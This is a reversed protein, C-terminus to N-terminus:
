PPKRNKTLNKCGFIVNRKKENRKNKKKEKRGKIKKKEAAKSNKVERRFQTVM